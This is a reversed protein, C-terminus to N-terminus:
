VAPGSAPVLHMVQLYLGFAPDFHVVGTVRVVAGRWAALRALPLGRLGVREQGADELVAYADPAGADFIRVVGRTTVTRGRYADPATQLEQVTVAITPGPAQRLRAVLLLLGLSLALTLGAALLRGGWRGM